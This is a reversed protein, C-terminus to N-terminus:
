KRHLFVSGTRAAQTFRCAHIAAPSFVAVFTPSRSSVVRRCGTVASPAAAHTFPCEDLTREPIALAFFSPHLPSGTTAGNVCAARGISVGQARAMYWWGDGYQM